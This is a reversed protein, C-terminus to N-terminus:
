AAKDKEHRAVIQAIIRALRPPLPLDTKPEQTPEVFLGAQPPTVPNDTTHNM